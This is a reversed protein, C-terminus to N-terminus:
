RAASGLVRALYASQIQVAQRHLPSEDFLIGLHGGDMEAKEKTGALREFVARQVHSAAGPFEDAPSMMFLTPAHVHSAIALCDFGPPQTLTVRNQWGSGYRAGYEIFWRFATLPILASPAAVQDASVVAKEVWADRPLRIEGHDLTEVMAAFREGGPDDPTLERGCAPMQVVVAAVEDGLWAAVALATAGSNSDGWIAIRNPDIEDRTRAYGIASRYGRAQLWQNIEGRPQGDSIGFGSHDYALAVIGARAFGEAFRHLVMPITASFGHALVVCHAPLGEPLYIRGRLVTQDQSSFEVPSWPATM